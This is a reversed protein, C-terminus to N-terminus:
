ARGAVSNLIMEYGEDLPVTDPNLISQCIVPIDTKLDLFDALFLLLQLDAIRASLPLHALKQLQQGVQERTRM